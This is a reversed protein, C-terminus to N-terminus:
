EGEGLSRDCNVDRSVVGTVGRPLVGEEPLLFLLSSRGHNLFGMLTPLVVVPSQRSLLERRAGSSSSLVKGANPAAGKHRPIALTALGKSIVALGVEVEGRPFWGEFRVEASCLLSPSSVRLIALAVGSVTKPLGM